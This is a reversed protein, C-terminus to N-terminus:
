CRLKNRGRKGEHCKANIAPALLWNFKLYRRADRSQWDVGLKVCLLHDAVAVKQGKLQETLIIM